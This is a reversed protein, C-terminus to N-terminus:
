KECQLISSKVHRWCSGWCDIICLYQLVYNIIIYVVKLLVNWLLCHCFNLEFVTKFVYRRFNEKSLLQLLRERQKEDTTSLYVLDIDSVGSALGSATSGVPVLYQGHNRALIRRLGVIINNRYQLTQFFLTNM